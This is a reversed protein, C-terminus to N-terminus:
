MSSPRRLAPIGSSHPREPGAGMVPVRPRTPPPSGIVRRPPRRGKRLPKEGMESPNRAPKRPRRFGCLGKARGDLGNYFLRRGPFRAARNERLGNTSILCKHSGPVRPRSPDWVGPRPSRGGAMTPAPGPGPNQPLARPRPHSGSSVRHPSRIRAHARSPHRASPRGPVRPRSPDWVGPRPSRGGAMTYIPM